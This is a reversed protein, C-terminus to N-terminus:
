GGSSHASARLDWVGLYKGQHAEQIKRLCALSFPPQSLDLRKFQRSPRAQRVDNSFTRDHPGYRGSTYSTAILIQASERCRQILQMCTETPYHIMVDRCLIVDAQRMPTVLPDLVKLQWGAARLEPWNEWETVDYGQYDASMPLVAKVWSLDSCGIDNIILDRNRLALQHLVNCLEDRIVAIARSSSGPGSRTEPHKWGGAFVSAMDQTTVRDWGSEFQRDGAGSAPANDGTSHFRATTRSPNSGGHLIGEGSKCDSAKLWEAL